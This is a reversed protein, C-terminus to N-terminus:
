IELRHQEIINLQPSLRAERLPTISIVVLRDPIYHAVHESLHTTTPSQSNKSRSYEWAPDTKIKKEFKHQLQRSFSSDIASTFRAKTNQSQSQIPLWRVLSRTNPASGALYPVSARSHLTTEKTGNSGTVVKLIYLQGLRIPPLVVITLKRKRYVYWAVNHSHRNYRWVPWPDTM